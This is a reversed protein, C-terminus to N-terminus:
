PHEYTINRKELKEWAEDSVTLAIKDVKCFGFYGKDFRLPMNITTSCIPCPAKPRSGSRYSNKAAQREFQGVNEITETFPDVEFAYFCKPCVLLRSGQGNEPTFLVNSCSTCSFKWRPYTPKLEQDSKKPGLKRAFGAGTSNRHVNFIEGCSPCTQVATDGPMAGVASYVLTDCHPCIVQVKGSTRHENSASLGKIVAEVQNRFNQLEDPDPQGTDSRSALERGLKDLSNATELLYAPDFQSKRIVAIENVQGYIMRNAQLILEFGTKKSIEGVEFKEVSQTIQGAAQGLVRSLNNLKEDIEARVAIVADEAENKAKTQSEDRQRESLVRSAMWSLLVGGLAVLIGGTVTLTPNPTEGSSGNVQLIVGVVVMAIGSIIEVAVSLLFSGISPREM